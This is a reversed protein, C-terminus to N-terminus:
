HRADILFTASANSSRALGGRGVTAAGAHNVRFDCGTPGINYIGTISSVDNENNEWVVNYYTTTSHTSITSNNIRKRQWHMAVRLQANDASAGIHQGSGLIQDSDGNLLDQVYYQVQNIVTSVPPSTFNPASSGLYLGVQSLYFENSTSDLFNSIATGSAWWEQQGTDVWSGITANDHTSGAALIIEFKMGIDAETFLWTGGSDLTITYTFKTWSSTPAFNQVYSRVQASNTLVFYYTDGSNAAATKAWFSITVQQKHLHAFDSGTIHYRFRAYQGAGISADTGTCKALWSYASQHSSQAVTPVSTSREVTITGDNSIQSEFLASSYKDNTATAASTGEPWQTFDGDIIYNRKDGGSADEFAPPSGAGTSTLVQGDSGPGVAVPDGSADYTIIQGDTGGALAALGVANDALHEAGIADDAVNSGSVADAGVPTAAVVGSGRGLNKGVIGSM